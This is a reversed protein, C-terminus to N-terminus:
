TEFTFRETLTYICMAFIQANKDRSNMHACAYPGRYRVIRIFFVESTMKSKHLGEEILTATSFPSWDNNDDQALLTLSCNWSYIDLIFVPNLEVIQM